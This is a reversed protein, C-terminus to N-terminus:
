ALVEFSILGSVAYRWRKLDQNQYPVRDGVKIDLPCCYQTDSLQLKKGVVLPIRFVSDDTRLSIWVILNHFSPDIHDRRVDIVTATM